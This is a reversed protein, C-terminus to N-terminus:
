SKIMWWAISVLVAVSAGVLLAFWPSGVISALIRALKQGRYEIIIVSTNDRGGKEIARDILENVAAGLDDGSHRALTEAIEDDDLESNLGDSCLLLRDGDLLTTEIISPIPDGLGLTQTVLNSRPDAQIQEESLVKQARLVELFSHDRSLRRLERNRWLYARSDGVWTIEATHGVIRAVVITSGMGALESDKDAAAVIACHAEIVQKDIGKEADGELLATRALESAVKGNAHGGMGDAVLWINRAEDWGISDENEGGRIGVDTKASFRIM